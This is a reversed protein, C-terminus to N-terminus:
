VLVLTKSLGPRSLETIGGIINSSSLLNQSSYYMGEIFVVFDKGILIFVMNMVKKVSLITVRFTDVSCM